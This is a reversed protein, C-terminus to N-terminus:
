KEPEHIYLNIMEGTEKNEIRTGGEFTRWIIYDKPPEIQEIARLLYIWTLNKPPIGKGSYHRRELTYDLRWEDASLEAKVLMQSNTGFKFLVRGDHNVGLIATGIIEPSGRNEKWVAEGSRRQWGPESLDPGPPATRCGSVVFMLLLAAFVNSATGKIKEMRNIIAKQAALRTQLCGLDSQLRWGRKEDIQDSHFPKYSCFSAAVAASM